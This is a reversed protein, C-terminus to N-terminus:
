PERAVPEASGSRPRGKGLARARFEAELVEDWYFTYEGRERVPKGDPDCVPSLRKKARGRPAYWNRLTEASVDPALRAVVESTTVVERGHVPTGVDAV